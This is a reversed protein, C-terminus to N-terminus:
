RGRTQEGSSFLFPRFLWAHGPRAHERELALCTRVGMNGLDKEFTKAAWPNLGWGEDNLFIGRYCVSPKDSVYDAKVWLRARREVPVDAWWYFPSVGMAESLTFAGYAVGRRDSGVIVLADKVGPLPNEVRRIIFQECGGELSSVDLRGEEVMRSILGNGKGHIGLIVPHGGAVETRMGVKKGTVRFIDESLLGTVKEVTKGDEPAYVLYAESIPFSGKRPEGFVRLTNAKAYVAFSMAWAMIGM